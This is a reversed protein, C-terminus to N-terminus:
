EEKIKDELKSKDDGSKGQLQQIAKDTHVLTDSKKNRIQDMDPSFPSPLQKNM